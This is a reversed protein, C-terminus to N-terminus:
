LIMEWALFFSLFVFINAGKWHAWNDIDLFAAALNISFDGTEAMQLLAGHM